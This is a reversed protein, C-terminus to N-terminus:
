NGMPLMALMLMASHFIVIEHRIVEVWILDWQQLHTKRLRKDVLTMVDEEAMIGELLHVIASACWVINTFLPQLLGMELVLECFLGM